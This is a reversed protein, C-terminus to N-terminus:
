THLSLLPQWGQGRAEQATGSNRLAGRQKQVPTLGPLHVANWGACMRLKVRICYPWWRFGATIGVASHAGCPRGEDTRLLSALAM